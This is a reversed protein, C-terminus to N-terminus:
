LSTWCTPELRRLREGMACPAACDLGGGSDAGRWVDGVASVWLGREKCLAARLGATAVDVAEGNAGAGHTGGSAALCKRQRVCDASANSRRLFGECGVRGVGRRKRRDGVADAAAGLGARGM